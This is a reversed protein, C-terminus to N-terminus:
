TGRANAEVDLQGALQEIDFKSIDYFSNVASLDAAAVFDINFRATDALPHSLTGSGHVSNNGALATLTDITVLENTASATIQVDEIPQPLDPDKLWGDVVNIRLNFEPISNETIAGQITGGLDLSGKSELGETYDTEPLLRRLDGF